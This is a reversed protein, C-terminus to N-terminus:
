TAYKTILFLVWLLVWLAVMAHAAKPGTGAIVATVAVAALELGIQELADHPTSPSSVVSM